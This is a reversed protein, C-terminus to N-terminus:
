PAFSRQTEDVVKIASLRSFFPSARSAISRKNMADSVAQLDLAELRSILREQKDLLAYNRSNNKELDVKVEELESQTHNLRDIFQSASAYELQLLQALKAEFAQKQAQEELVQGSLVAVVQQLSDSVHKAKAVETTMSHRLTRLEYVQTTLLNQAEQYQHTVKELQEQNEQILQQQTSNSQRLALAEDELRKKLTRLHDSTEILEEVQNALRNTEDQLNSVQTALKYNEEKFKNIEAMLRFRIKDLAVITIELIDAISSIGDKIKQKLDTNCSHHDELVIGATTYAVGTAGGLILLTGISAAVGMFLPPMTLVLGTGVKKWAPWTGWADAARSVMSPNSAITDIIISLNRKVDAIHQKTKIIEDLNSHLELTSDAEAAEAAAQAACVPAEPKKKVTALLKALEQEETVM